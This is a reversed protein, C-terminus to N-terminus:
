RRQRTAARPACRSLTLPLGVISLGSTAAAGDLLTIFERRRLRDFQMARARHPM